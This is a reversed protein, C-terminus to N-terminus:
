RRFTLVSSNCFCSFYERSNYRQTKNPNNALATLRGQTVSLNEGCSEGKRMRCQVSGNICTNM